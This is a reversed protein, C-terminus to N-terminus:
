PTSTPAAELRGMSVALLAAGVIGSHEGLQASVIELQRRPVILSQQRARTMAERRFLEITGVVGGGLIILPPNYFNIVSVLGAAMYEAAERVTELALEDGAEIAEALAKYHVTSGQPDDPNLEPELDLLVSHRGLRLAALISQVMATHSAYAELHGLGGCSCIRGGKDIVTHGLEGATSTAGFHPRGGQYIAGGIGTGVFICVFDPHDRGAGFGAEGAAAAVVDNVLVVPLGLDDGLSGALHAGALSEPLNPARILVGRDTDVQGAVGIGAATVEEPRVGSEAIADEAVSLMRQLVDTPGHEGRTRKLATARIEGTATDVVGALVKTGGLDIGLAFPM